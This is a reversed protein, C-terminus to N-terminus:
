AIRWSRKRLLTFVDSSLLHLGVWFTFWPLSFVFGLPRSQDHRLAWTGLVVFLINILVVVNVYTVASSQKRLAFAYSRFYHYFSAAAIHFVYVGERFQPTMYKSYTGWVLGEGIFLFGLLAYPATSPQKLQKYIGAVYGAILCAAATLILIQTKLALIKPGFLAFTLFGFGLAPFWYAVWPHTIPESTGSRSFHLEAKIFHPIFYVWVLFSFLQVGIAFRAGLLAAAGIALSAVFTAAGAGKGNRLVQAQGSYAYVFHALGMWAVILNLNLIEPSTPGNLPYDQPFLAVPLAYGIGVLVFTLALSPPGPLPKTATSAQGTM